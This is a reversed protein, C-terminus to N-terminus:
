PIVLRNTVVGTRGLARRLSVTGLQQVSGDALLINGRGRHIELTWGVPQNTTLELRGNQPSVGNTLNRDGCLFAGPRDREADLGIFYGIHSNNFDAGFDAAATRKRDAPCVLIRPSKLDNSLVQFFHCLENQDPNNTDSAMPFRGQHDDAWVRFAVGVEKLHMVCNIRAVQTPPPMMAPLILLFFIAVTGMVVVVELLTFARSEMRNPPAKM